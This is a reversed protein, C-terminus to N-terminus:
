SGFVVEEKLRAVIFERRACHSFSRKMKLDSQAELLLGPLPYAVTAWTFAVCQTRAMRIVWCTRALLTLFEQWDVM